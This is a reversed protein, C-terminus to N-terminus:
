RASTPPAAQPLGVGVLRWSFAKRREFTLITERAPRTPDTVGLRVRDASWFRMAPVPGGFLGGGPVTKTAAPAARGHALAALSDPTLYPDVDAQPSAPEWARRLAGLPDHLLDAPPGREASAPRLQTRLSQRVANYDVLQSLAQVDGYEAAARLSRFAFLPATVFAAGALALGVLFLTLLPHPRRELRAGGGAYPDYRADHAAADLRSEITAWRRRGGGPSGGDKEPPFTPPDDDMEDM